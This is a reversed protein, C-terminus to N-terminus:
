PSENNGHRQDRRECLDKAAELLGSDPHAEKMQRWLEEAFARNGGFLSERIRNMYKVAQPDEGAGALLDEINQEPEVPREV